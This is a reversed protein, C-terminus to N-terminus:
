IMSLYYILPNARNKVLLLMLIQILYLVILILTSHNLIWNSIINNIIHKIKRQMYDRRNSDHVKINDKLQKEKEKKCKRGLKSIEKENSNSELKNINNNSSNARVKKLSVLNTDFNLNIL